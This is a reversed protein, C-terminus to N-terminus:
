LWARVFQHNHFPFYSVVAYWKPEKCKKKAIRYIAEYLFAGLGAMVAWVANSGTVCNISWITFLMHATFLLRPIVCKVVTLAAKTEEKM